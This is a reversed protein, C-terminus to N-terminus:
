PVVQGYVASARTASLMVATGAGRPGPEARRLSSRTITRKVGRSDPCRVSAKVNALAAAATSSFKPLAAACGTMLPLSALLVPLGLRVFRRRATKRTENM